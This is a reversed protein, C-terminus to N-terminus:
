GRLFGFCNLDVVVLVSCDVLRFGEFLWLEVPWFVVFLNLCFGAWFILCFYGLDLRLKLRGDVV